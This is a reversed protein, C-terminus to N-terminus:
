IIICTMHNTLTMHESVVLSQDSNSYQTSSIQIHIHAATNLHPLVPRAEGTNFVHVDIQRLTDYDEGSCYGGFSYVKHGVAVAAHNVRRPGGELHVTWRLM